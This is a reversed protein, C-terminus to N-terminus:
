SNYRENLVLVLSVVVSVSGKDGGVLSPSPHFPCTSPVAASSRVSWLEDDDDDVEDSGGVEGEDSEELEAEAEEEELEDDVRGDRDDSDGSREVHYASVLCM